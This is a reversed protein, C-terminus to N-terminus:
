KNPGGGSVMESVANDVLDGADTHQSDHHAMAEAASNFETRPTYSKSYRGPSFETYGEKELRLRKMEPSERAM